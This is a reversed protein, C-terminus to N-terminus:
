HGLAVRVERQGREGPMDTRYRGYSAKAPNWPESKKRGKQYVYGRQKIAPKGTELDEIIRRSM